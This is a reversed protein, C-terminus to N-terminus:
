VSTQKSFFPERIYTLLPIPIVIKGMRKSQLGSSAIIVMAGISFHRRTTYLSLRWTWVISELRHCATCRSQSQARIAAVRNRYERAQAASEARRRHSERTALIGRDSQRRALCEARASPTARRHQRFRAPRIAARAAAGSRDRDM